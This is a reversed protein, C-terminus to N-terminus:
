LLGGPQRERRGAAPTAASDGLPRLEQRLWARWAPPLGHHEAGRLIRGAYAPSARLGSAVVQPHPVYALAQLREDGCVVEVSRHEYQAISVGEMLDLGARDRHSLHHVVGWCAAGAQPTIGAHGLGPDRLSRKNIAWRWGDLRAVLGHGDWGACRHRLQRPDLNSGYSFVPTAGWDDFPVRRCGRVQHPQGLYIWARRGDATPLRRRDYFGPYEELVDLRALTAADIRYLEAHIRAGPDPSPVAMPYEGLNHLQLGPVRTRGECRAGRLWHHNCEGRKLTGYVAVHEWGSM